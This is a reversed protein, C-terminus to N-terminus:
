KCSNESSCGYGICNPLTVNDNGVYSIILDDIINNSCKACQRNYDNDTYVELNILLSYLGNKLNYKTCVKNFNLTADVMTWKRMIGENNTFKLTTEDAELLCNSGDSFNFRILLKDNTSEDTISILNVRRTLLVEEIVQLIESRNVQNEIAYSNDNNENNVDNLLNYMFLMVITILVVSIILEILTLGKNNM